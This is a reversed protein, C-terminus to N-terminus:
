AGEMLDPAISKTLDFPAGKAPIQTCESRRLISPEKPEPHTVCM